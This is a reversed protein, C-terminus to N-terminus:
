DEGPEMPGFDDPAARHVQFHSTNRVEHHFIPTGISDLHPAAKCSYVRATTAALSVTSIVYSIIEHHDASHAAVMSVQFHLSCFVDHLM